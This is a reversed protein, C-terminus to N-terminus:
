CCMNRRDSSIRAESRVDDVDGVGRGSLYGAGAPSLRHWLVTCADHSGACAQEVLEDLLMEEGRGSFM